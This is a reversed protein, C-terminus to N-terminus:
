SGIGQSGIDQSGISGQSGANDAGQSDPGSQQGYPSDPSGGEMDRGYYAHPARRPATRQIRNPKIDYVVLTDTLLDHFGQKRQNFAAYIYGICLIASLYRGITERYIVNFLALKEGEAPVVKLHFFSKGATAGSFYTFLIFYSAGALYVAIDLISYHFLLPASIVGARYFGMGTFFLRLAGTVVGLILFDILYAFLRVGFGASAAENVSSTQM